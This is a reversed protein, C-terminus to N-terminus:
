NKKWLERLMERFFSKALHKNFKKNHTARELLECYEMEVWDEDGPYLESCVTGDILVPHNTRAVVRVAEKFVHPLFKEGRAMIMAIALLETPNYEWLYSLIFMVKNIM